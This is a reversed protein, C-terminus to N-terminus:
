SIGSEISLLYHTKIVSNANGSISCCRYCDSKGFFSIDNIDNIYLFSARENALHTV